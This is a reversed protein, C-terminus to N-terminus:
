VDVFRGDPGVNIVSTSGIRAEQGWAQHIHGCLAVRPHRDEIATLIAESGLHRGFAEDVYGRPPSHVVLVADPPCEALRARAEEESLDFSWPFPTPPVGGGLGFFPVGGIVRGSGHLVVASPWGASARGQAADSENNGPVLVTPVGIPRLADITRDLGLRFSAFDGAGVVVDAEGAMEALKAARRRDRHLDSFALIRVSV